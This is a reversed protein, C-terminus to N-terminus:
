VVLNWSTGNHFYLNSGSVALEGVGGAPLPDQPTLTATNAINFSGTVTAGNDFSVIGQDNNVSIFTKKSWSPLQYSSFKIGNTDIELHLQNDWTYSPTHDWADWIFQIKQDEFINDYFGTSGYDFIRTLRGKQSAGLPQGMMFSTISGSDYLYADKATVSGDNVVLNGNSVYTNNLLSIGSAGNLNLNGTTTGIGGDANMISTLNVDNAFYVSGSISAGNQIQVQGNTQLFGNVYLQGAGDVTNSGYLNSGGNANLTGSDVTLSGTIDTNRKFSVNSNGDVQLWTQYSYPGTKYDISNFQTGNADQLIELGKDYTYGTTTDYANFEQRIEQEYVNWWVRNTGNDFWRLISGKTEGLVNPNLAFSTISGPDDLLIDKGNINGNTVYLDGLVSVGNSAGNLNLNGTTTSIGGDANMSGTVNLTGNVNLENVATLSGTIEVNNEIKMDKLIHWYGDDGTWWVVNGSSGNNAGAQLYFVKNSGDLGKFTSWGFESDWYNTGYDYWNLKAMGTLDSDYQFTHGMYRKLNSGLGYTFNASTSTGLGINVSGSNYLLNKNHLFNTNNVMKSGDVSFNSGTLILNNNGNAANMNITGAATSFAINESGTGNTAFGLFGNTSFSMSGTGQGGPSNEINFNGNAQFYANDGSFFVTPQSQGGFNQLVVNVSGSLGSNEQITLPTNTVTSDSTINLTGQIYQDESFTNVEDRKAFSGTSMPSAVGDADGVFIYGELVNPLDNTRGPGTIVGSGNIASKEVNGLKQVLASGTPRENTYGGGVAVWVSDGPAFASTDVGNIFGVVIAEGEDGPNLDVNAVVGAPMRSPDGADAPFVGVLNGSTGSGTIYCPTGKAIFGASVNKATITTRLASDVSISGTDSALIIREESGYQGAMWYNNVADYQLSGTTEPSIVDYVIIGANGVTRNANLEIERDGVVLTSSSIITESGSVYLNGQIIVDSNIQQQGTFVNSGTTAYSGTKQTLNDIRTDQFNDIGQQSSTFSNFDYRIDGQSATYANLSATAYEIFDLRLNENQAQTLTQYRGDLDVTIDPQGQTQKITLEGGNPSTSETVFTMGTVYIDDYNEAHSATLAFSATTANDANDAQVAHSASTATDANGVLSGTINFETSSVEAPLDNGLGDQLKQLTPKVGQTEDALKILGDYTDKIYKNTLNGM